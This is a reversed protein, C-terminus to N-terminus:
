ENSKHPAGILYYVMLSIKILICIGEWTRYNCLACCDCDIRLIWGVGFNDIELILAISTSSSLSFVSM